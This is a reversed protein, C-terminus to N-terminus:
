ILKAKKGPSQSHIPGPWIRFLRCPMKGIACVVPKKKITSIEKAATSDVKQNVSSEGSDGM